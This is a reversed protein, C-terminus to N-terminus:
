SWRAGYFEVGMHALARCAREGTEIFPNPGSLYVWTRGGPQSQCTDRVTAEMDLREHGEGTLHARVELGPNATENFFPLKIYDAERVSWVIICRKWTQAEGAPAPMQCSMAAQEEAERDPKEGNDHGSGVPKQNRTQLTEMPNREEYRPSPIAFADALATRDEHKTAEQASFAAAIAIAGSIGTGAVLCIVTDYYGPNAPTFYPGELRLSTHHLTKTTQLELDKVKERDEEQLAERTTVTTKTDDVLSALKNTWQKSSKEERPHDTNPTFKKSTKTKRFLFQIQITEDTPTALPKLSTSSPTNVKQSALHTITTFPHIERISSETHHIHFHALPSYCACGDLRRRPLPLTLCFWGNGIAVLSSDMKGSLEYIRMGWDLVWM